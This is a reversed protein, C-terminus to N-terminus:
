EAQTYDSANEVGTIREKAAGTRFLMQLERWSLRQAPRFDDSKVYRLLANRWQNGEPTDAVAQLDCMCVLLRGKGVAFEFVLGLKHNREINDVVQVLPLYDGSLGDLIM